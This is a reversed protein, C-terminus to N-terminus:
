DGRGVRHINVLFKSGWLGIPIAVVLGLVTGWPWPLVLALALSILAALVMIGLIVAVQHLRREPDKM